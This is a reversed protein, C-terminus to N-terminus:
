NMIENLQIFNLHYFHLELKRKLMLISPLRKIVGPSSQVLPNVAGTHAFPGGLNFNNTIDNECFIQITVCCTLIKVLNECFGPSGISGRAGRRVGMGIM